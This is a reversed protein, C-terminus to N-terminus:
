RKGRIEENKSMLYSSLNNRYVSWPSQRYFKKKGVLIQSNGKNEKSSFWVDKATSDPVTTKASLHIYEIM